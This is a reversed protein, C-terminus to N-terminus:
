EEKLTSVGQQYVQLATELAAFPDDDDVRVTIKPAGKTMTEIEVTARSRIVVTQTSAEYVKPGAMQEPNALKEPKMAM